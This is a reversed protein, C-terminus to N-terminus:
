PCKSSLPLAPPPLSPHHFLLPLILLRARNQRIISSRDSLPKGDCDFLAFVVDCVHDSLEVKAVTRAVQKMTAPLPLSSLSLSLPESDTPHRYPLPPTLTDTSRRHARIAVTSPLHLLLVHLHSHTPSLVLHLPGHLFPSSTLFFSSFHACFPFLM